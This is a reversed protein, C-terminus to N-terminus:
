KNKERCNCNQNTNATQTATTLTKSNHTSIIQAMNKTCSYSIKVYNRNLIKHLRHQKPFHKDILQLFLKGINTSVLANYPPNYWIINKRKRNRPRPPKPQHAFTLEHDHGSARLAQEYPRKAAQFVAENSSIDNLRKNIM